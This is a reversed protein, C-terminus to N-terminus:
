SCRRRTPPRHHGDFRIIALSHIEEVDGASDGSQQNKDLMSKVGADRSIKLEGGVMDDKPM